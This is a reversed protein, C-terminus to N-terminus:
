FIRTNLLSQVAAQGLKVPSLMGPLPTAGCTHVHCGILLIYLVCCILSTFRVRETLCTHEDLGLSGVPM